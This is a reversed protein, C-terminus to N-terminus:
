QKIEAMLKNIRQISEKIREQREELTPQKIQYREMVQKNDLSDKFVKKVGEKKRKYDALSIVTM